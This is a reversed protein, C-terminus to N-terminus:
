KFEGLILKNYEEKNVVEGIIVLGNTVFRKASATAVDKESRATCVSVFFLAKENLLDDTYLEVGYNQIKSNDQKGRILSLEQDAISIKKM